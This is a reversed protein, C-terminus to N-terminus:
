VNNMRRLRFSPHWEVDCEWNSDGDTNKFMHVTKKTENAQGNLGIVKRSANEIAGSGKGAYLDLVENRSYDRSVQSIQIIIVDMNVALNSLSHSVHKIKDYEARNRPVEILDIYDVVVLAPQLEKIKTQIDKITPSITQVVLHSLEDKHNEYITDYNDTAEEKSVNAVIQLHRRHMYWDSLELSLFLTPIQWERNIRNNVFDMGLAINQAFTTKNSGTPGFITVLEGPYIDSDVNLGLMESLKITRGHFNTTLREHLDKQLESSSKVGILYDKRQFHICNTKCHERMIEDSCAHQYGYNYTNEVIDVIKNDNLSKANWHLLSLKAFDSPIGHRRFHSAIRLATKARGGERPGKMLMDQVCPVNNKPEVVSKMSIIKPLDNIIYKNLQKNGELPTYKFDYRGDKAMNQIRKPEFNILEEKTLPIKYLDKKKNITHQVRYIATRIFVAPDVEPFLRVLTSKVKLPLDPSAEFGFVENSVLIHYGTGSFFIMYSNSYVEFDELKNVIDITKSQTLEDSNDKKDVDLIIKDIYRKGFFDKLSGKASVYDIAEDDYLYTSRFLAEDKKIYKVLSEKAILLGRNRPSGQAIELYKM